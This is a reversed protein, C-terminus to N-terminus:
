AKPPIPCLTLTTLSYPHPSAKATVQATRSCLRQSSAESPGQSIASVYTWRFRGTDGSLRTPQVEATDILQSLLVGAEAADSTRHALNSAVQSAQLSLALTVSLITLAVIADISAFGSDPQAVSITDTPGTVDTM